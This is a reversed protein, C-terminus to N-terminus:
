PVRYIGKEIQMVIVQITNKPLPLPFIKRPLQMLHTARDSGHVITALIDSQIELNIDSLKSRINSELLKEM